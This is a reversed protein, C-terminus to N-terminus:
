PQASRGPPSRRTKRRDAARLKMAEAFLEKIDSNDTFMGITRRWDKGRSQAPQSKFEAFERELVAVRKELSQRPM